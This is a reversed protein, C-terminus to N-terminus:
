AIMGSLQVFQDEASRTAGERALRSAETNWEKRIRWFQIELGRKRWKKIEHLIAILLDRNQVPQKHRKWNDRLWVFVWRTLGKVVYDSDTAIVMKKFGGGDTYVLLSTSDDRHLFGHVQPFGVVSFSPQFLDQPPVDTDSPEFLVPVGHKRQIDVTKRPLAIGGLAVGSSSSSTSDEKLEPSERPRLVMAFGMVEEELEAESSM